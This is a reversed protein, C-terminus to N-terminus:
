SKKVKSRREAAAMEVEIMHLVQIRIRAYVLQENLDLSKGCAQCQIGSEV